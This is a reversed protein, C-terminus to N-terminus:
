KELKTSFNKVLWKCVPLILMLYFLKIKTLNYSQSIHSFAKAMKIIRPRVQVEKVKSGKVNSGSHSDKIPETERTLERM